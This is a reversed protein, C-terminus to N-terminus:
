HQGVFLIVASLGVFHGGAVLGAYSRDSVINNVDFPSVSVPLCFVLLIHGNAPCKSFAQM